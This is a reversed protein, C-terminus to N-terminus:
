RFLGRSLYKYSVLSGVLQRSGRFPWSYMYRHVPVRPGLPRGMAGDMGYKIPTVSRAVLFNRSIM